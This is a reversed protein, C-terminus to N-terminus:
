DSLQFALLANPIRLSLLSRLYVTTQPMVSQPRLGARHWCVFGSVSRHLVIEGLRKTQDLDSPRMGPRDFVPLSRLLKLIHGCVFVIWRQAAVQQHERRLIAL